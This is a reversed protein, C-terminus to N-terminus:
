GRNNLYPALGHALEPTRTELAYTPSVTNLGDAYFIGGKLFNIRGHDEFKDEVFNKQQLGIYNLDKAHYVGQYGINHITLYSASDGLVEDDWHWIKLYATALATQWDHAHVIDPAFGIDKAFQLAARTFFAFRRPNDSFDRFETDHYIGDRAFYNQSEIFYTPVKSGSGARYVACWAEEDGMWVGLPSHFLELEFNRDDIRGYKPLVVIVDHGLLQLAAPLAGVVDALGGTKIFPVGESALM